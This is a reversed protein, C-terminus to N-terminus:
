TDSDSTMSRMRKVRRQSKKKPMAKAKSNLAKRLKLLVGMNVGDGYNTKTPLDELKIKSKLAMLMPQLVAIMLPPPYANGSAKRCLDEGLKLLLKPPFGQLALLESGMFFRFFERDEDAREEVVDGVSMVFLTRTNQTTLTPVINICITQGYERGEARDSCVVALDTPYVEGLAFMSKIHNEYSELNLQVNQTLLTRDAAPFHGLVDRLCAQGFPQLPAPVVEAICRRIGRIFVRVRTQPRM